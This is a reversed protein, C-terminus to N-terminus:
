AGRLNNITKNIDSSKWITNGAVIMDVDRLLGVNEETIGGDCSIIIDRKWARFKEINGIPALDIKQGGFGPEVTMQLVLDLRDIYKRIREAPTKPKIALGRKYGLRGIKELAESINSKCEEHITIISEKDGNLFEAIKDIYDLPYDFMLHIDLPTATTKKIDKIREIGMSINPVFHGDMLDIHIYDAKGLRKIEKELHLFDCGLISPSIKLKIV